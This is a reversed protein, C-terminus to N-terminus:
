RTSRGSACTPAARRRYARTKRSATDLIYGDKAWVTFSAPNASTDSAIVRQWTEHRTRYENGGVNVLREGDLCFKDNADYKVGGKFGDLLITAGCRHIVSLGGLSWGHGVFGNGAQSDYGLTLKPQMGHTGPPIVVPITYSASGRTTVELNGPTAGVPATAAVANMSFALLSASVALATASHSFIKIIRKRLTGKELFSARDFRNTRDRVSMNQSGARLKGAWVTSAEM